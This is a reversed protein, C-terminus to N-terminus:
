KECIRSVEVKQKSNYLEVAFEFAALACLKATDAVETKEEIRKIREEVQCAISSIEIPSLGEVAVTISRGRIKIQTEVNTIPKRGGSLLEVQKKLVANEEELRSILAATKEQNEMNMGSCTINACLSKQPKLAAVMIQRYDLINHGRNQEGLTM